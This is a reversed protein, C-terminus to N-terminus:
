KFLAKNMFGNLIPSFGKEHLWALYSKVAGNMILKTELRSDSMPRSSRRHLEPPHAAVTVQFSVSTSECM